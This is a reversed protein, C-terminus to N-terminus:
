FQNLNSDPEFTLQRKFVNVVGRLHIAYTTSRNLGGAFDRITFDPGVITLSTDDDVDEGELLSGIVRYFGIQPVGRFDYNILMIWDDNRIDARGNM